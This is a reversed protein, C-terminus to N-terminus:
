GRYGARSNFASVSRNLSEALMKSLSATCSHVCAEREEPEVKSCKEYLCKRRLKEENVYYVVITDRAWRDLISALGSSGIIDEVERGEVLRVDYVFALLESGLSSAIRSVIEDRERIKGAGTM